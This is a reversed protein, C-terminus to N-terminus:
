ADAHHARSRVAQRPESRCARRVDGAYLAAPLDDDRGGARAQGAGRGRPGPRDHQLDQGPRDGHRHHHLAQRARDIRLGRSRCPRHGQRHRREALRRLRPRAAPRRLGAHHPGAPLRNPEREGRLAHKKALGAAAAGAAWGDELCASLQYTGRAAGASREAQVSTGPVFADITADFRLKGRSQSFLHVAPTWGGSLGVCDCTLTRPTGVAGSAGVPAVILGTVRKRGHSGVVTHGTLVECGAARLAAAEPACDSEQRLDVVSVEIGAARSIRACGHLRFRRLHRDGRATGARRRLSQRVRAPERGAHHRSSRQRRLRASARARRDGARGRRRAGALAARAALGPAAAAPPRDAAAAPRHPQSQLLRLRDHAAAAHREDRASLAPLRTPSGRGPRHATSPQPRRTCCLAAWRPRSTPLSSEGAAKRRRWRLLLVPRAPASSWCTATRM